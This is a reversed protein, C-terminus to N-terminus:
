AGARQQYGVQTLYRFVAALDNDPSTLRRIQIKHELALRPIRDYCANPDKTSVKIGEDEFSVGLIDDFRTLISAFERPRDAEIFISHPHQDIMTRIQYIDGDAILRGKNILLINSTMAEVEHLVHSSVIVTKGREGLEM